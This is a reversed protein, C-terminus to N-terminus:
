EDTTTPPPEGGERPPTPSTPKPANPDSPAATGIGGGTPAGRGTGLRARAASGGFRDVSKSVGRKQLNEKADPQATENELWRAAGPLSAFQEPTLLNRLQLVYPIAMQDRRRFEDRVRDQEPPPPAGGQSMRAAYTEAGRRMDVPEQERIVRVLTENFSSLEANYASEIAIVAELTAPSLEPLQKAATLIRNVATPRYVRSHARENVIERVRAGVEEPLAAVIMAAYNENVDRVAVRERVQREVVQLGIQANDERLAQMLDPHSDAIVQDRRRLAADLKIEYEDLIPKIKEMLTDDVEAERLVHFLDITEASLRGKHLSKERVLKREFWDWEGLQQASMITKIDDLMQRRLSLKEVRWQDVPEFLKQMVQKPDSSDLADKMDTMRKRMTELGQEFSHQYDDFFTEVILRQDDDLDLADVIFRVDRRIFDPEFADAFGGAAGFQAGAAPALALVAAAAMGRFLARVM